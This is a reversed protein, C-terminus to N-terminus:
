ASRKRRPKLIVPQAASASQQRTLHNWLADVVPKAPRREVEGQRYLRIEMTVSWPSQRNQMQDARALRRTAVEQVVASEPLFAIGHGELAMVKLGEAMDTEYVKDLAPHSNGQSLILEVMRGLFANATYSLYPLHANSGDLLFEPRGQRDCRSYPNLAEDGLLLMEYNEPNLQLPQRPHHYCLMLDCAGDVLQMAADHVNVAMLRCPIRGFDRGVAALWKPFFTLALTHPVAFEVTSRSAPHQSRVLERASTFRALMELAQEYFAEGARTLRTPYSARDILDAGIWSELAQIRRSFAPQTVNRLGASRSFSGTEALSVFDELWKTEM